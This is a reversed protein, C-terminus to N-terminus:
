AKLDAQKSLVLSLGTSNLSTKQFTGGTGLELPSATVKEGKENEYQTLEQTGKSGKFAVTFKTTLTNIPTIKAIVEGRLAEEEGGCKFAAVTSSKGGSNLILAVEHAAKSIYELRTSVTNAVVEGEAAGASSCKLAIGFLSLSCGKLTLASSFQKFGTLTTAGAVTECKVSINASDEFAMQGGSYAISEPFEYSLEPLTASASATAVSMAAVTLALVVGLRRGSGRMSSRM